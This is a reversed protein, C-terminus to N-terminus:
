FPGIVKEDKSCKIIAVIFLWLRRERSLINEQLFEIDKVKKNQLSEMKLSNQASQNILARNVDM